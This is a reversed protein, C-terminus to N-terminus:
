GARRGARRDGLRGRHRRPDVPHQRAEISLFVTSWPSSRARRRRHPQRPPRDEALELGKLALIFCVAAVLYLIATWTPSLLMM